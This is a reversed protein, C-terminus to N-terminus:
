VTLSVRCCEDTLVSGAAKVKLMEAVCENGHLLIEGGCCFEGKKVREGCDILEGLQAQYPSGFLGDFFAEQRILGRKEPGDDQLLYM